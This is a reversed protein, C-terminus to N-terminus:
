LEAIPFVHVRQIPAQTDLGAAKGQDDQNRIERDTQSTPREYHSEKKKRRKTWQKFNLM